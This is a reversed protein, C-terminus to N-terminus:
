QGSDTADPASHGGPTVAPTDQIIQVIDPWEALARLSWGQGGRIVVGFWSRSVAGKNGATRRTRLRTVAPPSRPEPRLSRRCTRSTTSSPASTRGSSPWPACCGSPRPGRVTRCPWRQGRGSSSPPRWRGSGRPWWAGGSAAWPRPRACSSSRPATRPWTRPEPWQPWTWRPRWAWRGSGSVRVVGVPRFAPHVDPTLAAGSHGCRGGRHHGQARETDPVAGGRGGAGRKLAPDAGGERAAARLMRAMKELLRSREADRPGKVNRVKSWRNHGAMARVPVRVPVPVPVPVAAPSGPLRCPGLRGRLPARLPPLLAPLRLVPAAM